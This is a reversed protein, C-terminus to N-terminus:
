QEPSMDLTPAIEEPNGGELVQLIGDMIEKNPKQENGSTTM